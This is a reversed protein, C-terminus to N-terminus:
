WLTPPPSEQGLRPHWIDPGAQIMATTILEKNPDGFFLFGYGQRTERERGEKAEQTGEQISYSASYRPAQLPHSM